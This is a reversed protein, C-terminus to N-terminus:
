MCTDCAVMEEGDDETQGCICEVLWTSEEHENEESDDKSSQRM